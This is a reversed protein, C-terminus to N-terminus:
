TGAGPEVVHGQGVCEHAKQWRRVHTSTMQHMFDSLEHDQEPWLVFHWHNPMVSYSIIRMPFILLSERFVRLFALYDAATAFSTQRGNGRNLV